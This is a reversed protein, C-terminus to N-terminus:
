DKYMAQSAHRSEGPPLVGGSLLLLSVCVVPSFIHVETVGFVLMALILPLESVLQSDGKKVRSYVCWCFFASFCLGLVLLGSAYACDLTTYYYTWGNAGIVQTASFHQGFLTLGQNELCYHWLSVRGTLLRGLSDSYLPGAILYVSCFLIVPLIAIFRRLGGRGLVGWQKQVAYLAVLLMILVTSTKSNTFLLVLVAIGLIAAYARFGLREYNLYMYAGCMMMAVAAAMNPHSFFFTYRVISGIGNEQRFIYPLDGPDFVAVLGYVGIVFLSFFATTMFWLRVLSKPDGATAAAIVILAVSLPATEGSAFYTCVTSLLVLTLPLFRKGYSGSKSAIHISLFTTGALLLGKDIADPLSALSTMSAFTKLYICMFGLVFAASLQLLGTKDESAAEQSFSLTANTM